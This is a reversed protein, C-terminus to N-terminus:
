LLIVSVCKELYEHFKESNFFKPFSKLRKRFEKKFTSEPIAKIQAYLYSPFLVSSQIDLHNIDFIVLPEFKASLSKIGLLKELDRLRTEINETGLKIKKM